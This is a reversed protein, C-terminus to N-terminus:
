RPSRGDAPLSIPRDEPWQGALAQDFREEWARLEAPPVETSDAAIASIRQLYRQM